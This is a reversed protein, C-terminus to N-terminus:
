KYTPPTYPVRGTSYASRFDHSRQKVRPWACDTRASHRAAAVLGSFQEAWLPRAGLPLCAMIPVSPKRCFCIGSVRTRLRYPCVGCRAFTRSVPLMYAYHYHYKYENQRWKGRGANFEFVTDRNKFGKFSGKLQGEEVIAM